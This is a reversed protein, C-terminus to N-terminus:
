MKGMADEYLGATTRSCTVTRLAARSWDLHCYVVKPLQMDSRSWVMGAVDTEVQCVVVTLACDAVSVLFYLGRRVRSPDRRQDLCPVERYGRCVVTFDPPLSETPAAKKVTKTVTTFVSLSLGHYELIPKQWFALSRQSHYSKTHLSTRLLCTKFVKAPRLVLDDARVKWQRSTGSRVRRRANSHPDRTSLRGATPCYRHPLPKQSTKDRILSSLDM